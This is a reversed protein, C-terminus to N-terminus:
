GQFPTYHEDRVTETWLTGTARGTPSQFTPRSCARSKGGAFSSPARAPWPEGRDLVFPGSAVRDIKVRQARAVESEQFRAGSGGTMWRIMMVTSQEILLVSQWPLFAIIM